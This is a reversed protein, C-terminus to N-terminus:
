ENREEESQATKKNSELEAVKRRLEELEADKRAREEAAKKKKDGTLLRVIKLVELLVIIACPLIVILVTGIPHSIISMLVGLPYSQGVVQGIVYNTSDPISTDITQYLQKSESTTNDGALEIIFGGSEKETISVIRHTITVQSTYVYRITLVDGVELSRYWEDAEAEDTPMVKVFVMSYIPISGIEYDSVDTKECEGMSDSVVLRMQYGLIEAAGDVSRKSFVTLFVSLICIALFLYLLVNLAVNGIKKMTSRKM